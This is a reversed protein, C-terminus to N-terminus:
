RPGELKINHRIWEAVAKAQERGMRMIEKGTTTDKVVWFGDPRQPDVPEVVPKIERESM